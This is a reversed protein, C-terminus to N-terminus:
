GAVESFTVSRWWLKERKSFQVFPVFDRLVDCIFMFKYLYSELINLSKHVSSNSISQNIKLPISSLSVMRSEIWWSCCVIYSLISLSSLFISFIWLLLHWITEKVASMWIEKSVNAQKVREHPLDRDHLYWDISKWIQM